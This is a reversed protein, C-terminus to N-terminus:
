HPLSLCHTHTLVPCSPSLPLTKLPTSPTSPHVLLPLYRASPLSPSLFDGSEAGMDAVVFAPVQEETIGFFEFVRAETTPVSVFIAKGKFQKALESLLALAPGHSAAEKDTFLLAHQQISSRFIKKAAEQLKYKNYM